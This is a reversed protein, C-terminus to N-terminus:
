VVEELSSFEKFQLNFTEYYKGKKKLLENHNGMEIIEGDQLYIILDANKVASIRHAIIFTTPKNKMRYLNKLLNFETDMDLASTADDLILIRSDRILARAISLRQKQGGSLGIGREGIITKYGEPLEEIFDDACALSCAKRIDEISANENGYRINEEITDSFLFVDQSVLAMKSRLSKLDINKINTGDILIEGKNADYYRGILNILSSKGSGTTGMIAVTSGSKINLNINKLVDSDKYSFNVNKFRISGKLNDLEVPKEIEKINPETDMIKYIKKASANNQALLNTLWGLMRMPWILMSIYGYFATLTGLTLRGYMVLIGGITVMLVTAANTLFEINPFYKSIVRSQELSLDYNRNNLNLFKLIEHKERAFAKVLRVGAINEQAATNILATQDSISDYVKDIDKELKMALFAIPVMIALCVIALYFNLYLLIVSATVFYIMNEVFLRLGFSITRWINDVDEGIRSMLTGTNVNDFYTHSLSQIHNFLDGKIDENVKASLVDFLYEKVYHLITRLLAIGAIAALIYWLIGRKGQLFIDDVIIKSLIPNVMDLAISLIMAISPLILLGKYRTVYKFTRKM